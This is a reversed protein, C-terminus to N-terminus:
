LKKLRTCFSVGSATLYAMAKEYDREVERGYLYIKGLQYEAYDNRMYVSSITGSYSEKLREVKRREAEFKNM